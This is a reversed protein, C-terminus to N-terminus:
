NMRVEDLRKFDVYILYSGEDSFIDRMELTM